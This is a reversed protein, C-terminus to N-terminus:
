RYSDTKRSSCAFGWGSHFVLEISKYRPSSFVVIGNFFIYLINTHLVIKIILYYKKYKSTCSNKCLLYTNLINVFKNETIFHIHYFFSPEM